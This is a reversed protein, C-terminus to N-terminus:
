RQEAVIAGGEIRADYRGDVLGLEFVAREGISLRPMARQPYNVNREKAGPSIHPDDAQYLILGTEGV